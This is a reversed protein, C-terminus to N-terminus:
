GQHIMLSMMCLQLVVAHLRSLRCRDHGEATGGAEADAVSPWARPLVLDPWLCLCLFVIFVICTSPPACWPGNRAAAAAKAMLDFIRRKGRSAQLEQQDQVSLSGLQEPDIHVAIGPMALLERVEKGTFGAQMGAGPTPAVAPASTHSGRVSPLMHQQRASPNSNGHISAHDM